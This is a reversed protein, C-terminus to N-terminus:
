PTAGNNAEFEEQKRWLALDRIHLNLSLALFILLSGITVLGPLLRRNGLDREMVISITPSDPDVEDPPPPAGPEQAKPLVARAQVVAYNTPHTFRASSEIKHWVRGWVSDDTREPKGGQQFTDIVIFDSTAANVEEGDVVLTGTVFDFLSEEAIFAEASAVAEGSATSALLNWGDLVLYGEDIAWEIVEPGVAALESLSEQDIRAERREIQEAVEAEIGAEDLKRPDDDSILDNRSVVTARIAEDDVTAIEEVIREKVPGDPYALLLGIARPLCGDAPATFTWGTKSPPFIPDNECNPDPLDAVNGVFAAELGGPEAGAEDEFAEIYQWSPLDGQEAIGIGYVWWVLGMIAMWGFFGALAVMAGLRTGMNTMLLLWVSGCLVAAALAVTLMGRIEPEWGIGAVILNGLSM